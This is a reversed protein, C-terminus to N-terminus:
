SFVDKVAEEHVLSFNNKKLDQINVKDKFLKLGNLKAILEAIKVDNLIIEYVKFEDPIECIYGIEDFKKKIRGWEDEEIIQKALPYIIEDERRIHERMKQILFKGEFLLLAKILEINEEEIVEKLVEKAKRIDDHDMRFLQTPIEHGKEELSKFLIEEEKRHHTEALDIFSFIKKLEIVKPNEPLADIIIEFDKLKSLIAEHEKQLLRHPM